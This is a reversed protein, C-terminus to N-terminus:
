IKLYLEGKKMIRKEEILYDLLSYMRRSANYYKQPDEFKKGHYLEIVEPFTKPGDEFIKLIKEDIQPAISLLEKIKERPNYIIDGHAPLILKIEEKIQAIKQLSELYKKRNGDYEFMAPNIAIWTEGEAGIIFDSSFLIGQERGFFSIEEACHGSTELIELSYRGLNITDGEKVIQDVKVSKISERLKYRDDIQVTGKQFALQNYTEYNALYDANRPSTVIQCKPFHEKIYTLSRIHETHPHSILIYNLDTLERGITKLGQILTQPYKEVSTDILCKKEDDIFYTNMPFRFPSASQIQYIKEVIEM